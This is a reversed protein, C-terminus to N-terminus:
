TPAPSSQAEWYESGQFKLVEDGWSWWGATLNRAFVELGEYGEELGMLEEFLAKLNPKRSHLDPVGIMIRREIGKGDGIRIYDRNVIGGRTENGIGEVNETPNHPDKRGVLLVEWPRRWVDNLDTVTEGDKTVKVWVWEEVFRVGWQAFLGGGGGDREWGGKGVVMERFEKRNTVWVGVLGGDGLKSGLPLRRLLAEIGERDRAIDYSKARRASRNPWPPDLLIISFKPAHLTFHPLTLTLPGLLPTSRPPISVTSGPDDSGEVADISPSTRLIQATPLPNHFILSTTGDPALLPEPLTGGSANQSRYSEPILSSANKSRKRKGGLGGDGGKGEREVAGEEIGTVRETCWAGKWGKRVEELAFGVVKGLILADLDTEGARLEVNRQAKATKPPHSPFPHTLAPTSLIRRPSPGQACELSHPIDLLITTYTPNHYLIPTPM